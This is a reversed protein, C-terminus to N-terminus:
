KEQKGMGTKSRQDTKHAVFRGVGNAFVWKRQGVVVHFDKGTKDSIGAFDQGATDGAERSNLLAVDGTGDLARAVQKDHLLVATALLICPAVVTNTIGVKYHMTTGM